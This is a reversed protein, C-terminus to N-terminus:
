SISDNDDNNDYEDNDSYHQQDNYDGYERQLTSINEDNLEDDLSAVTDEDDYEDEDLTSVEPDAAPNSPELSAVSLSAVSLSAVTEGEEEEESSYYEEDEDEDYEVNTSFYFLLQAAEQIQTQIDSIDINHFRIHKTNFTVKTERRHKKKPEAALVPSVQAVPTVSSVSAVQAATQTPTDLLHL